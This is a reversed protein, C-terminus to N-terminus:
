LFAHLTWSHWWNGRQTSQYKIKILNATEEEEEEKAEPCTTDPVKDNAKEDIIAVEKGKFPRRQMGINTDVTKLLEWSSVM